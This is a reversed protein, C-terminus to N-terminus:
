FKAGLTVWIKEVDNLTATDASFDAYKISAYYNKDFTKKVLFNIEDGYDTGGNEASFQHYRALLLMNDFLDNRAETKYSATFNLDELGNTTSNLVDAWGNFAHSSALPTKFTTGTTGESEKVNYNIGFNFGNKETGLDLSYYNADYSNPNDGNDGQMAYEAKYNVKFGQINKAGKLFAGYTKSSDTLSSEFDLLYAYAGIKGVQNKFGDFSLNILHSESDWDGNANSKGAVRNVNDVYGYFLDFNPLTQNRITLADFTQNNQRWGDDGVFRENDLEIKQRGIVIDTKPFYGIGIYAQNVETGDPDTITPRTTQNNIGNNHEESDPIQRVDQVEAGFKLGGSFEGTEYGLNTRLTSANGDQAFSSDEVMEYRYRSDLWFKGNKFAQPLASFPNSVQQASAASSSFGASVLLTTIIIKKIM